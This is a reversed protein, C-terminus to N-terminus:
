VNNKGIYNIRAYIAGITRTQNLQKLLLKQIEKASLEGHHKKLIKDESKSWPKSFNKNCFANFRQVDSDSIKFTNRFGTKKLDKFIEPHRLVSKYLAGKTLKKNILPLAENLDYFLM